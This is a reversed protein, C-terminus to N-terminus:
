KIKIKEHSRVGNATLELIYIGAAFQSVNITENQSTGNCFKSYVCAGVSNYLKLSQISGGSINKVSINVLTSAPNPFITIERGAISAEIIRIDSYTYHGDLDIIKLRYFNKGKLINHHTFSYRGFAAGLNKERGIKLFDLGDTSWEIDISAVNIENETKWTLCGNNSCQQATFSILNLPLVSNRAKIWFESFGTVSFELYKLNYLSGTDISTIETLGTADSTEYVGDESPGEYKIISLDAMSAVGPVGAAFDDLESQSFYLRVKRSGSAQITYHRKLFKLGNPATYIPNADVYVTSTLSTLENCRDEVAIMAKQSQASTITHKWRGDNSFNTSATAIGTVAGNFSENRGLFYKARLSDYVSKRSRDDLAAPYVILEAIDGTYFNQKTGSVTTFGISFPRSEYLSSSNGNSTGLLNRDIRNGNIFLQTEDGALTGDFRGEVIQYCDESYGTATANVSETGNLTHRAMYGNDPLCNYCTVSGKVNSKIMFGNGSGTPAQSISEIVVQDNASTQKKMVIFVNASNRCGFIGPPITTLGSNGNFRVAPNKGINDAIYEPNTLGPVATANNGFGSQDQWASISNGSRTIGAEAKLWLIPGSPFGQQTGGFKAAWLYGRPCTIDGNTYLANTSTATVFGGDSAKTIDAGGESSPSGMTRNWIVSGDGALKIIWADNGGRTSPVDNNAGAATGIVIVNGDSDTIISNGADAGTSGFTKSWILTGTATTKLVWMDNGGRNTTTIGTTSNSTGSFVFNGAADETIGRLNDTNNGSYTKQWNLVGTLTDVSIVYADTGQRGAIILSGTSSVICAYANEAAPTGYSKCWQLTGDFKMKTLMMDSSGANSTINGGVTTSSGVAIFGGTPLIALDAGNDQNISGICAQWELSGTASIKYIGMDYFNRSSGTPRVNCSGEQEQSVVNIVGGDPTAKVKGAIISYPVGGSFQWVISGRADLKINFLRDYPYGSRQSGAMIYGGDPTTTIGTAGELANLINPNDNTTNWQISPAQSFANTMCAVLLFTLLTYKTM